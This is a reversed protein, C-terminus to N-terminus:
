HLYGLFSIQPNLSSATWAEEVSAFCRMVQWLAVLDVLWHEWWHGVRSAEAQLYQLVDRGPYGTQYATMQDRQAREHAM